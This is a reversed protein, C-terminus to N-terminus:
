SPDHFYQDLTEHVGVLTSLNTGSTTVGNRNICIVSRPRTSTRVERAEASSALSGRSVEVVVPDWAGILGTIPDFAVIRFLQSNAPCAGTFTRGADGAASATGADAVAMEQLRNEYGFAFSTFVQIVDTQAPTPVIIHTEIASRPPIRVPGQWALGSELECLRPYLAAYADRREWLERSPIPDRDRWDICVQATPALSAAPEQSLIGTPLTQEFAARNCENIIQQQTKRSDPNNDRFNLVCSNTLNARRTTADPDGTAPGPAPSAEAQTESRYGVQVEYPSHLIIIPADTPNEARIALGFRGRDDEGAVPDVSVLVNISAPQDTPDVVLSYWVGYFTMALGLAAAITFGSLKSLSGDFRIGYAPGARFLAALAWTAMVLVLVATALYVVRTIDVTEAFLLGLAITAACVWFAGSVVIGFVWAMPAKARLVPASIVMLVGVVAYAELMGKPRLPLQWLVALLWFGLLILGWIALMRRVGEVPDHARLVRTATFSLAAIAIAIGALARARDAEEPRGVLGLMENAVVAVLALLCVGSVVASRRAWRRREDASPWPESHGVSQGASGSLDQGPPPVAPPQAETVDSDRPLPTADTTM